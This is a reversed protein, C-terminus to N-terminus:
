QVTGGPRAPPAPEFRLPPGDEAPSEPTFDGEDAEPHADPGPERPKAQAEDGEFWGRIRAADEAGVYLHLRTTVTTLLRRSEAQQLSESAWVQPGLYSVAVLFVAHLVLATLLGAVLGGFRDVPGLRVAELTRRGLNGVLSALVLVALFLLLWVLGNAVPGPLESLRQFEPGFRPALARAVAIAAALGLLRIVQWWLGRLLGLLGFLALLGLGVLDLWHPGGTGPLPEQLLLVPMSLPESM